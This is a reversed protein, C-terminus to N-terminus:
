NIRRFRSGPRVNSSRKLANSRYLAGEGIATTHRRSDSTKGPMDAREVRAGQCEVAVPDTVEVLIVPISQLAETHARELYTPLRKRRIPINKTEKASSQVQHTPSPHARQGTAKPTIITSPAVPQFCPKRKVEVTVTAPSNPVLPKPHEKKGVSFSSKSEILRIDGTRLLLRSPPTSKLPSAAQAHLLAEDGGRFVNDSKPVAKQTPIQLTPLRWQDLPDLHEQDVADLWKWVNEPRM